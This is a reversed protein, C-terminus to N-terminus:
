KVVTLRPRKGFDSLMMMADRHIPRARFECHVVGGPISKSTPVFFMFGLSEDIEGDMMGRTLEYELEKFLREIREFRYKDAM